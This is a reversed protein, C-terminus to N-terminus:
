WNEASFRKLIIHISYAAESFCPKCFISDSTSHKWFTMKEISDLKQYRYHKWFLFKSSPDILEIFILNKIFKTQWGKCSQIVRHAKRAKAIETHAAERNECKDSTGKMLRLYSLALYNRHM